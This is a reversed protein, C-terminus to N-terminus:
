IMAKLESFGDEDRIANAIPNSSMKIVEGTEAILSELLQTVMEGTANMGGCLAVSLSRRAQQAEIKDINNNLLWFMKM